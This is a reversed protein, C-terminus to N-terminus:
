IDYYKYAFSNPFSVANKITNILASRWDKDGYLAIREPLLTLHDGKSSRDCAEDNINLQYSISTQNHRARLSLVQDETAPIGKGQM